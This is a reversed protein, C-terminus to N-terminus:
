SEEAPNPQGDLLAALRDCEDPHRPALDNVEWIDDPKRYLRAPLGRAPVAALYAWELTRIARELESGRRSAMRVLGRQDGDSRLTLPLATAQDNTKAVDIQDLVLPVLDSTRTFASVRRMGERHQPFRMLLPLHVLEEHMQSEDPGVIGHEALPWGYGSTVVWTASQDLGRERLVEVLVDLEADFGTVATAFSNHLRHWEARDDIAVPARSPDDYPRPTEETESDEGDTFGATASAYHQYTEADIDWPPLLRDTEIWLLWRDGLRDLGEEVAAILADGPSSHEAPRTRVIEDSNSPQAPGQRDDVFVSRIGRARLAAFLPDTADRFGAPSPDDALHRDFVVSECALADFAPTAVWENGYPGLWHCNLGHATVVVVNM